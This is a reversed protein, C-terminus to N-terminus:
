GSVVAISPAVAGGPTITTAAIEDDGSAASNPRAWTAHLIGDGTRFLGIRTLNSTDPETVPSWTGVTGAHATVPLAFALALASGALLRRMPEIREGIGSGRWRWPWTM